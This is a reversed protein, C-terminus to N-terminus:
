STLPVGCESSACIMSNEEKSDMVHDLTAQEGSRTKRDCHCSGPEGTGLNRM